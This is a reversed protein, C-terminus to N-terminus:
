HESVTLRALSELFSVRDPPKRLYADAGLSLALDPNELVSCVLVPISKTRPHSKLNQLMMWGDVHPLMIDLVIWSPKLSQALRFGEDAENASAIQYPMGTIFRELLAVVDPNDDIVLVVQRQRRLQLQVLYREGAAETLTITGHLTALFEAVTPSTTLTERLTSIDMGPGKIEFNAGPDQDPSVAGLIVGSDPAAHTIIQSLMWIITQRLVPEHATFDAPTLLPGLHLTVGHNEALNANAAIAGTLLTEVDIVTYASQRSLRQMESKVSIVNNQTPSTKLRDWLLRSVAQIARHHERYFQRESLALQQLVKEMSLGEIYRMLLLTYVRDQRSPTGGTERAKLQEVTDILIRRVTQVRQLGTSDPAIQGALPNSQLEAVDYLHALCDRVQREFSEPLRDITMVFGQIANVQCFFSLSKNNDKVDFYWTFLNYSSPL